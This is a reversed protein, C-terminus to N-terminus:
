RLQSAVASALVPEVDSLGTIRALTNERDRMLSLCAAHYHDKVNGAALLVGTDCLLM